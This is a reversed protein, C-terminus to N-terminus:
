CCSQNPFFYVILICFITPMVLSGCHGFGILFPYGSVFVVSFVHCIYAVSIAISIVFWDILWFSM